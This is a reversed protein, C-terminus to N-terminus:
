RFLHTERITMGSFLMDLNAAIVQEVLVFSARSPDPPFSPLLPPVQGPLASRADDPDEIRIALSLSLTSIYPFPHGRTWRWRPSSPYIETPSASSLTAHHEPLRTTSWSRYAPRASPRASRSSSRAKSSGPTERYRTRIAALQEAAPKEGPNAPVARAQAQEMLGSVRIQFFEDMNSAFIALFKARELLPNREDRAEYLVRRNFELSSLERNIYPFESSAEHSASGRRVPSRRVIATV